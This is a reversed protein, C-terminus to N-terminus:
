VARLKSEMRDISRWCTTSDWSGPHFAAIAAHAAVLGQDLWYKHGTQDFLVELANALGEMSRAWPYPTTDPSLEELAMRYAVIGARLRKTGKEREGLKCLASALNAQTVAWLHPTRDRPREKLSARLASVAGKLRKAGKERNGLNTLVVGLGNQVVSWDDPFRDQTLESLAARFATEAEGLRLVDTLRVGLTCLVAGLNTQARGWEVPSEDRDIEELASRIAEAASELRNTGEEREGLKRLTVGLNNQTMAWSSPVQERPYMELAARYAMVAEELLATGTEREGVTRLTIARLNQIAAWGLPRDDRSTLRLAEDYIGVADLGAANEGFERSQSHLAGAQDLKHFVVAVADHAPELAAAQGFLDAAERYRLRTRAIGGRRALIAADERGEQNLVEQLEERSRLKAERSISRRASLDALIAEAEDLAGDEIASEARMREAELETPLSTCAASEALLAHYRAAFTALLSPWEQLPVPVQGLDRFFGDVARTKLEGEAVLHAVQLQLAGIQDSGVGRATLLEAIRTELRALAAGQEDLRAEIRCLAALQEEAQETLTTWVPAYFDLREEIQKVGCGIEALRAATLISRFRDDNKLQEALFAGYADFWPPATPDISLFRDRFAEPVPGSTATELEGLASRTALAALDRLVEDTAMRADDVLASDIASVLQAVVGGEVQMNPIASIEAEVWAAARKAFVLDTQANLRAARDGYDAVIARNAMMQAKRVAREVDHNRPLSGDSGSLRERFATRIRRCAPDLLQSTGLNTGLGAYISLANQSVVAAGVWSAGALALQTLVPDVM